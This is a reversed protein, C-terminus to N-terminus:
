QRSEEVIVLFVAADLRIVWLTDVVPWQSGRVEVSVAQVDV